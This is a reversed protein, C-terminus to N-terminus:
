QGRRMDSDNLLQMLREITAALNAEGAYRSDLTTYDFSDPPPDIGDPRTIRCARGTVKEAIRGCLEAFAFVTMSDKGVLNIATFPTKEENGMWLSIADAIDDTGVFNRRQIGRSALAIVGEHVASRPFGFPILAWRRFRAVDPPIGFVACPRLVAARFETGAARRLIQESAFHSIAYNHLPNPPSAESIRGVYPGYIHGTSIYVFQRIRAAKARAVLAAMGETAQRFARAANTFDEDVIGACHILTDIGQLNLQEVSAPDSFDARLHDSDRRGITVIEGSASLRRAVASGILGTAGSIALHASNAASHRKDIM